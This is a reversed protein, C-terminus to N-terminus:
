FELLNLLSFNILAKLLLKGSAEKMLGSRFQVDAIWNDDHSATFSSASRCIIIFSSFLSPPFDGKMIFFSYHAFQCSM